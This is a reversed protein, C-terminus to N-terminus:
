RSTDRRTFDVNTRQRADTGALRRLHQEEERDTWDSAAIMERVAEADPELADPWTKAPVSRMLFLPAVAVALLLLVVSTPESESDAVVAGVFGAVSILCGM